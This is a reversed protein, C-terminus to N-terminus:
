NKAAAAIRDMLENWGQDVGERADQPVLGFATHVMRLITQGGDETLRYIVNNCVPSSMFLPGTMELLVPRKISQVHGWLHGEDSGLDRFWRGGPRPEIRLQLKSGDPGQNEPGLQELLAEFVDELSADIRRELEIRLHLEPPLTLTTMPPM